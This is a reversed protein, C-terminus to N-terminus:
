KFIKLVQAKVGDIIDGENATWYAILLKKDNENKLDLKRLKYYEFSPHLKFPELVDPSNWLWVGAINLDPEEGFIGHVGLSYKHCPEANEIHSRFQNSTKLLEKGESHHKEYKLEYVSFANADFHEILFDIAKQKDTENVYLTKFNHLNFTSTPPTFKAKVPEEDEDAEAKKAKKPEEKKHEEKKKEVPKPKQEQKAAKANEHSIACEPFVFHGYLNKFLAENIHATFYATLHPIHEREAKGFAFRFAPQLVAILLIDAATLADGVLFKKGNLHHEYCNLADIFHKTEEKQNGHKKKGHILDILCTQACYLESRISELWQSVECCQKDDAGFLADKTKKVWKAIVCTQAKVGEPTELIPLNCIPSLKKLDECKNKECDIIVTEYEVKGAELFLIAASSLTAGAKVHLKIGPM